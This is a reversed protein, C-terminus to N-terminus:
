RSRRGERSYKANTGQTGQDQQSKDRRRCKKNKIPQSIINKTKNQKTKTQKQAPKAKATQVTTEHKKSQGHPKAQANCERSHQASDRM